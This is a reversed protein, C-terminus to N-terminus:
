PFLPPLSAHIDLRSNGNLLALYPLGTEAVLILREADDQNVALTILQSNAGTGASAGAGGLGGAKSGSQGAAAPGVALVQVKALVLRTVAAGAAQQKHPGNCAPEATLDGGGAAASGTAVTDFVAVQSGTQVNGAVAEPVCLPITVAVMGDPIAMGNTTQAATVLMPNLLLQGPQLDASLVLTALAPTIAAVANAPVSAAPMKEGVLSGDRQAGGAVTGAPILKQAVLVTVAKQGALARSDAKRVYLLVAGTGIVALAVALAIALGRRKM